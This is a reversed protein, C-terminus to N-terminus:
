LRHSLTVMKVGVLILWIALLLFLVLGLLMGVVGIPLLTVLGYLGLALTPRSYKKFGEHKKMSSTWAILSVALLLIGVSAIGMGLANFASAQSAVVRRLDSDGISSYSAALSPMTTAYITTSFAYTISSAIGLIAGLQAYAPRVPRMLRYLGLFTPITLLAVVTLGWFLFSYSGRGDSSGLTRSLIDTISGPLTPIVFPFFLVLGLLAM